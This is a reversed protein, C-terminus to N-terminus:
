LASRRLDESIAGGAERLVPVFEEQLRGESFRAAPLTIGLAAIPEGSHNRIPVAVGCVGERWEECNVAYGIRRVRELEARLKKRDCITKKTVRALGQAFLQDLTARTAFALMAKGTATCHAPARLGVYADVKVPRSSEVREIIVAGTGELVSLYATEDVENVLAQMRPRAVDRIELRRVASAGVECARLGLRYRGTQPHRQVYSRERLTSLIRLATAPPLGVRQALETLTVDEDAAALGELVDLGKALTATFYKVDSAM